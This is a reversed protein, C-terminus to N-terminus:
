KKFGAKQGGKKKIWFIWGLARVWRYLRKANRISKRDGNATELMRSLFLSDINKRPCLRTQYDIDHLRCSENHYKSLRKKIFNPWSKPGCHYKM